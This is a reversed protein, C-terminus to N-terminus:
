SVLVLDASERPTVQYNINGSATQHYGYIGSLTFTHGKFSDLSDYSLAPDDPDPKYVFTIYISFFTRAGNADDLSVYLTTTDGDTSDYGGYCYFKDHFNVACNLPDNSKSALISYDGSTTAAMKYEFYKLSHEETNDAAGILVEAEGAAGTSARPFTASTIQFGFNESDLAVGAVKIYTNVKSFKTPITSMGCYINIGAFEGGSVTSGTTSDFYDEIYMTHNVYGAVVGVVSVKKNNYANVHTSDSFSAVLEKKLDLLSVTQYDGDPFLPDPEGSFLNLKLAKAQSEAAYFTDSYDPLDSVNKVYSFGEQVIWLNLLTLESYSANKKETNVWVLSVFRSGTSDYEPAKYENAPSSVVITGNAAALTLKEKTFNSAPKGYPQIQGTSEPTDIGWFRSKVTLTSTTTIVPDFHATDGDICTHLNMQGIGDKYFDHGAYDLGLKVSGNHAYDIKTISTASSASSSVSSDNSQSSANGSSTSSNTEGCGALLLGLCLPLLLLSKRQM